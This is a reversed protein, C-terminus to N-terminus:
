EAALAEVPTVRMARRAPIITAALAVLLLTLGVTAFTAPDQPSVGYLQERLLRATGLSLAIGAATGWVIPTMGRRLVLQWIHGPAAGLAMRVGIERTRQSVFYSVVGYVGVSALVLAIAGLASLLMTNFRARAVSATLFGEMSRDDALPLSADVSMVARRLERTITEPRLTTQTVLVLSRGMAPWMAPQTQTFPFYVTPMAPANLAADHVDSVVGVITIWNPVGRKERMADIRKGIAREGPWLKKALSGSVVAVSLSAADDTRQIDRGDLLTMGM